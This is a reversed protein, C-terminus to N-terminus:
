QEWNLRGPSKVKVFSTIIGWSYIFLTLECAIPHFFWAPDKKRSFGKLSQYLLPLITVCFFVFKFLGLKNQKQWPYQRLGAKQFYLYDRIRRKQKRIFIKLSSGCYLHVIGTKVKAFKVPNDSALSAIVDIDVLYNGVVLGPKNLVARRMITGNAGITPINPPELEIKLYDWDEGQVKNPIGNKVKLKSSQVKMETWRDTLLNRKDYNGLFLCLPDNMGLLACYRDIFGDEKRYTFEWPESGLIEQDKFPEVMKMLWNRDPLINDSDILAVLEGQAQRLAIAKGAEGTKLPNQYIKAGYAKAIKVTKDISGGDAIIIEMKEKPYDQGTISALCKELTRESNLTPILFSVSLLDIKTM